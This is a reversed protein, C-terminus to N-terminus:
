KLRTIKVVFSLRANGLKGVVRWCGESSFTLGAPQFGLSGYGDPVHARLPRAGADLRRGSIRLKGGPRGRWWGLKTSISGDPDITASSGGDPRTGAELKGDRWHLHARLHSNGYNFAAADPGAGPRATRNPLTVSCRPGAVVAPTAGLEQAHTGVLLAVTAALAAICARAM